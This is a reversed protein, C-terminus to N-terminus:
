VIEALDDPDSLDLERVLSRCYYVRIRQELRVLKVWEGALGSQNGMAAGGCVLQGQAL